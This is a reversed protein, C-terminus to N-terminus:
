ITVTCQPPLCPLSSCLSPSVVSITRQAKQDRWQLLMWKNIWHSCHLSFNCGQLGFCQYGAFTRDLTTSLMSPHGTDGNKVADQFDLEGEFNWWRPSGKIVVWTGVVTKSLTQRALKQPLRRQIKRVKEMYGSLGGAFSPRGLPIGARCYELCVSTTKM